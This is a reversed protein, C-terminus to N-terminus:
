TECCIALSLADKCPTFHQSQVKHRSPGSTPPLPTVLLQAHMNGFPNPYRLYGLIDKAIVFYKDIQCWLHTKMM